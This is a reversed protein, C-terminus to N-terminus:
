HADLAVPSLETRDENRKSPQVSVGSLLSDKSVLKKIYLQSCMTLVNPVGYHKKARRRRSPKVM